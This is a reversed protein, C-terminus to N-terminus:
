ICTIFTIIISTQANCTDFKIKIYQIGLPLLDYELQQLM